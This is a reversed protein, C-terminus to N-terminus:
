IKKIKKRMKSLATRISGPTGPPETRAWKAELIVRERPTLPLSDLKAEWEAEVAKQREWDSLEKKRCLWAAFEKEGMREGKGPYVEEDMWPIHPFSNNWGPPAVDNQTLWSMRAKLKQPNKILEDFFIDEILPYERRQNWRAKPLYYISGLISLELLEEQSKAKGKRPRGWPLRGSAEARFKMERKTITKYKKHYIPKSFHKEYLRQAARLRTTEPFNPFIRLFDGSLINDSLEEEGKVCNDILRFVIPTILPMTEQLLLWGGLFCFDNHHPQPKTAAVDLAIHTKYFLDLLPGDSLASKYYLILLNAVEKTRLGKLYKLRSLRKCLLYACNLYLEGWKRENNIIEQKIWQYKPESDLFEIIEKL